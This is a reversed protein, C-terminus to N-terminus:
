GLMSPQRWSGGIRRTKGKATHAILTISRGLAQRLRRAVEYGNLRPLNIDVIAVDPRSELAKRVGEEGDAAVEVRHGLLSLLLRMSERGDENDEIVLILRPRAALPATSM